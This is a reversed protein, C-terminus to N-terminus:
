ASKRHPEPRKEQNGASSIGAERLGGSV